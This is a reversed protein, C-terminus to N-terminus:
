KGRLNLWGRQYVFSVALLLVGLVLFSVIRYGQTLRGIDVLFVKAIGLALLALAQWRLYPSTRLFGAALLVAGFGLLVGSYCLQEDMRRTLPPVASGAWLWDVVFLAAVLLFANVLLLREAAFRQNGRLLRVVFFAAFALAILAYSGPGAERHLLVYLEVFALLANAPLLARRWINESPLELAFSFLLFFAGVLVASVALDPISNEGIYWAISFCTTAFFGALVLRPWRHTGALIVASLDLLLLYSFLPLERSSWGALLLPTLYGGALAYFALVESGQRWAFWGNTVTILVMAVAATGPSILHFLSFASWISLYIIGSGVAKLSYSFGQYGDRRFRASWAILGLGAVMGIVVRTLPGIWQNDIAFKLFWAVGVLVAVIGVRNFLQSGIRGELSRDPKPPPPPCPEAASAMPRASLAAELREVRAALEAVREKLEEQDSEM